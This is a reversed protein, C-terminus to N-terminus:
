PTKIVKERNVAELGAHVRTALRRMRWWARAAPAAAVAFPVMHATSRGPLSTACALALLLAALSVPLLRWLDTRARDWALHDALLATVDRRPLDTTHLSITPVPLSEM